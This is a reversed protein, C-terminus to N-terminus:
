NAKPSNLTLRTEGPDNDMPTDKLSPNEKASIEKMGSTVTGRIGMSKLRREAPIMFSSPDSVTVAGRGTIPRRMSIARVGFPEESGSGLEEVQM